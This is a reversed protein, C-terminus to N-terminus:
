EPGTTETSAKTRQHDNSKKGKIESIADNLADIVDRQADVLEQWLAKAQFFGKSFGLYHGAVFGVGVLGLFFVLANMWENM